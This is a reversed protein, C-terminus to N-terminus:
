SGTGWDTKTIKMMIGSFAMTSIIYWSILFLDNEQKCVSDPDAVQEATCTMMFFDGPIVNLSVPSMAVTYSFLFPLVMLVLLMFPVITIIMPRMNMQMMEMNLKSIYASKKNLKNIKNQDKSKYAAIKEKSFARTEKLIRRMKVGDIMKKRIVSNIVDVLIGFGAVMFAAVIMNTIVPDDSGLGQGGTMFGFIGGEQLVIGDLFLLIMTTGMDMM